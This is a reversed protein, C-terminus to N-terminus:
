LGSRIKKFFISLLKSCEDEEIGGYIESCVKNYLNNNNQIFTVNPDNAGYYLRKIRVLKIIGLCMQCPKLTVWIDCNDLFKKRTKSLAKDIAIKEAHFLPNKKEEVRNHAKSIINKNKDVIIAGVPVENKILSKKAEDIALKMFHNQKLM